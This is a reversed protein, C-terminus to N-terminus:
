AESGEDFRGIGSYGGGGPQPPRDPPKKALGVIQDPKV